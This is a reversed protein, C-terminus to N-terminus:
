EHVSAQHHTMSTAPPGNAVAARLWVQLNGGTACNASSAFLSGNDLTRRRTDAAMQRRGRRTVALVTLVRSTVACLSVRVTIRKGGPLFSIIELSSFLTDTHTHTSSDKLIPVNDLLAAISAAEKGASM